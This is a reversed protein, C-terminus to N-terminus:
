AALPHRRAPIGLVDDRLRSVCQSLTLAHMCQAHRKPSNGDAKIYVMWQLIFHSLEYSGCCNKLFFLIKLKKFDALYRYSNHYNYLTKSSPENSNENINLTTNKSEDAIEKKIEPEKKASKIVPVWKYIRLSSDAVAVWRKERFLFWFLNKFSDVPVFKRSCFVLSM